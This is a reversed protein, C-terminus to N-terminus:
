TLSRQMAIAMDIEADSVSIESLSKIIEGVTNSAINDIHKIADAKAFKIRNHAETLQHAFEAEADTQRKAVEDTVKERMESIILSARAHAQALEQEYAAIAQDTEAKLSEADDLDRQIRCQREEIVSAITPLTTRSLVFYLSGFTLALWILQPVMDPVNFQPLGAQVENPAAALVVTLCTLM